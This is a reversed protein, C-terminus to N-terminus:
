RLSVSANSIREVWSGRKACVDSEALLKGVVIQPVPSDKLKVKDGSWFMHEAKSIVVEAKRFAQKGDEDILGLVHDAHGHTLLVYDISSPHIGSSNLTQILRGADNASQILPVRKAANFAGADIMVRGEPLDFVAVNLSFEFPFTGRFLSTYSSNVSSDSETFPNSAFLSPGDYLVTASVKGFQFHFTPSNSNCVGVSHVGSLCFAAIFLLTALM